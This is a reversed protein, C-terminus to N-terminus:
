VKEKDKEAQRIYTRQRGEIQGATRAAEIGQEKDGGIFYANIENTLKEVRSFLEFIQENLIEVYQEALDRVAQQGIKIQGLYGFGDKDYHKPKYYNAGVIFQTEGASGEYGSSRAILEWFHDPGQGLAARLAAVSQKFSLYGEFTKAGQKRWRSDGKPLREFTVLDGSPYYLRFNRGREDGKLTASALLEKAYDDDYLNLINMYHNKGGPGTKVWRAAEETGMSIPNYAEDETAPENNTPDEALNKPLLLLKWNKEYSLLSELFTEASFDFQFFRIAQADAGTLAAASGAEKFTKLGVIYTMKGEGGAQGVYQDSEPDQKLGTPDIFHDVLDKYSGHVDGPKEGLLKLSVPNKDNDVLDQIGATGAPVQTGSLLAALFGEFAFGAASANFHLLINTLTDLLVIHSLIESVDDTVPPNEIFENIYQIKETLNSGKAVIKSLLSTIVERDKTGEKGWMKESIRIIPLKLTVDRQESAETMLGSAQVEEILDMITGLNLKMEHPRINFYNEKIFKLEEKNM